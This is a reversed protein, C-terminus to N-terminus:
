SARQLVSGASLWARLDVPSVRILKGNNVRVHPLTGGVSCARRITSASTQAVYAAQEADLYPLKLLAAVADARQRIKAAHFSSSRRVSRTRRVPM